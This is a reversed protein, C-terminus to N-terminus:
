TKRRRWWITFGTGIFLLPLIILFGFGILVSAVGSLELATDEINRAPITIFNDENSLWSVLRIGLDLNGGNALYTNSLFDGDSIIVIRQQRPTTADDEVTLERELSVGISIPGVTDVGEDYSVEGELKGTELWTHDGTQMLKKVQWTENETIQLGGAMPFLTTYDFGKLAPHPSYM